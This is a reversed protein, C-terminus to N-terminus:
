RTEELRRAVWGAEDEFGIRRYFALLKGYRAKRDFGSNWELKRLDEPCLHMPHEDDEGLSNAGQMVCRWTVCHHISFIHGAEHALLKLSRRLFLKEDKARYRRLSYVGTRQSLSAQGFVFNLGPSFLDEETIGVYVIGDAPLSERLKRLIVSANYQGRDRDLAAEFLPLPELVRAPVGFFIEAYERMRELTAGYREAAAGLPRLYFTTRHACGRNPHGKVYDGFSQPDEHFRDRWEGPKPPGLKEHGTDPAAAPAPREPPACCTEAPEERRGSAAWVLLAALGATAATGGFIALRKRM